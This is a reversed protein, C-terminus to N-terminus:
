IGQSERWEALIQDLVWTTRAGSVGTSPCKGRGRLEDVITQMGPEKMKLAMKAKMYIFRM